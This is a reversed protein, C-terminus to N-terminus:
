TIRRQQHKCTQQIIDTEAVLTEGESRVINNLTRTGNPSGRTDNRVATHLMHSLVFAKYRAPQPESRHFNKGRAARTTINGDRPEFFNVGNGYFLQENALYFVLSTFFIDHVIKM